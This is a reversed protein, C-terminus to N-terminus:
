EKPIVVPRGAKLSELQTELLSTRPNRLGAEKLKALMREAGTADRKKLYAEALHSMAHDNKPNSRLAAQLYEIAKDLNPPEQELFTAALETLLESDEPEEALARRFWQESEAYKSHEQYWKGLFGPINLEAAKRPNIEYAKKMFEIAEDTRGIQDYLTAAEIQADYNDPNERARKIAEDVRAMMAQQNNANSGPQSRAASAPTAPSKANYDRTWVFSVIFGLTLGILGFLLRKKDL